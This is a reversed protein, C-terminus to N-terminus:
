LEVDPYGYLCDWDISCLRAIRCSTGVLWVFYTNVTRTTGISQTM